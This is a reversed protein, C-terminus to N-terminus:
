GGAGSAGGEGAPPTKHSPASEAAAAEDSSDASLQSEAYELEALIDRLLLRGMPDTTEALLARYQEVTVHLKDRDQDIM